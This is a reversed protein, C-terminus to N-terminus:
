HLQPLRVCAPARDHRCDKKWKQKKGQQDTTVESEKLM